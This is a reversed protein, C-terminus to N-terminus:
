QCCSLGDLEVPFWSCEKAATLVQLFIQRHEHNLRRGNWGVLVTSSKVRELWPSM